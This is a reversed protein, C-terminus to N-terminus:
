LPQHAAMSRYLWFVARPDLPYGGMDIGGLTFNGEASKTYTSRVEILGQEIAPRCTEVLQEFETDYEPAKSMPRAPGTSIGFIPIGMIAAMVANSPMFDRDAPDVLISRDYSLLARKVERLTTPSEHPVLLSSYIM